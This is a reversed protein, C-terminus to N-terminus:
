FKEVWPRLDLEQTWASRQQLHLQLYNDAIAEPALLGDEARQGALEAYKESLIQGDIIVHGIHIGRPGLERAMSQALARLGFKGVALNAFGAGGRLSATAGTFLITGRGRGLMLRAVARGVLFGGLCGVRWCREFEETSIDVVESQVFAGANYVVLDPIGFDQQLSDLTNNVDHEATADCSYAKVEAGAQSLKEVWPALHESDRAAMGVKMGQQAFCEALALGLGPGVGVVLAVQDKLTNTAM